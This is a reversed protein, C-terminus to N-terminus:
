KTWAAVRGVNECPLCRGAALPMLSTDSTVHHHSVLLPGSGAGTITHSDSVEWSVIRVQQLQKFLGIAESWGGNSYQAQLYTLFLLEDLGDVEGVLGALQFQQDASRGDASAAQLATRTQQLLQAVADLQNAASTVQLAMCVCVCCHLDERGM